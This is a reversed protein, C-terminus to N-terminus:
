EALTHIANIHLLYNLAQKSNHGRMAMDEEGWGHGRSISQLVCVSLLNVLRSYPEHMGHGWMVPYQQRRHTECSGSEKLPVPKGPSGGEVANRIWNRGKSTQSIMLFAALGVVQRVLPAFIYTYCLITNCEWRPRCYEWIYFWYPCSPRLPLLIGEAPM